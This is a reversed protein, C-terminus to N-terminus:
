QTWGLYELCTTPGVSKETKVEIGLKTLFNTVAQMRQICEKRTSGYIFGDDLYWKTIVSIGGSSHDQAMKDRIAAIMEAQVGPCFSAGFAMPCYAYRYFEGSVPHRIGMFDRMPEALAWNFFADSLDIKAMWLNPHLIDIVDPIMDLKCPIGACASNLGSATADLTNRIKGNDKIIMGISHVVRPPVCLPGELKHCSDFVRDVEKACLEM